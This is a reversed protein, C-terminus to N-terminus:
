WSWGRDAAPSAHPPSVPSQPTLSPTPIAHRNNWGSHKHPMNLAVLESATVVRVMCHIHTFIYTHIPTYKFLQFATNRQLTQMEPKLRPRAPSCAPCRTGHSRQKKKKKGRQQWPMCFSRRDTSAHVSYTYLLRCCTYDCNGYHRYGWWDAVARANCSAEEGFRVRLKRPHSSSAVGGWWLPAPQVCQHFSLCAAIVIM